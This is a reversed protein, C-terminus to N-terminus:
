PRLVLYWPRSRGGALPPGGQAWNFRQEWVNNAQNAEAVTHMSNAVLRLTHWGAPVSLTLDDTAAWEGSALGGPIRLRAVLTDDVYLDNYIDLTTTAVGDNRVAVDIYTTRDEYLTTLRHGGPQSAPVVPFDWDAPLYPVIDPRLSIQGRELVFERAGFPLFLRRSQLPVATSTPAPVAPTPTAPLSTPVPSSTPTIRQLGILRFWGPASSQAMVTRAETDVVSDLREWLGRDQSWLYLALSTASELSDSEDYRATLELPLDTRGMVSNGLGDTASLVFSQLVVQFESDPPASGDPRDSRDTNLPAEIGPGDRPAFPDSSQDKMALLTVSAPRPGFAGGPVNVTVAGDASSLSASSGSQSVAQVPTRDEFLYYSHSGSRDKVWPDEPFADTRQWGYPDVVRGDRYVGFHLHRGKTCPPGPTDGIDGIPDGAKVIAGVLLDIKALHAYLTAYGNLHDIAVRNGYCRDPALTSPAVITGDAAAVAKGATGIDIGEHGSYWRLNHNSGNTGWADGFLQGTFLLITTKITRDTIDRQEPIRKLPYQHDFYSTVPAAYNQVPWRFLTQPTLDIDHVNCASDRVDVRAQRPEYPWREVRVIYSGPVLQPVAYIGLSNTTTSLGFSGTGTVFVPLGPIPRNTRTDRVVGGLAGMGSSFQLVTGIEPPRLSTNALLGPPCGPVESGVPDVSFPHNACDYQDRDSMCQMRVRVRYQGVSLEETVTVSVTWDRPVRNCLRDTCTTEELLVIVERGEVKYSLLRPVCNDPSEGRIGLTLKQGTKPKAPDVTVRMEDCAPQASVWKVADFLVYKPHRQGNQDRWYWDPTHDYLRVSASNGRLFPYTGLSTWRGGQTQSLDVQFRGVPDGNVGYVYYNATTTAQVSRIRPIYAFVEYQGNAPLNPRWTGYLTGPGPPVTVAYYAHGRYTTDGPGSDFWNNPGTSGTVDFGDDRDDVVTETAFPASPGEDHRDSRSAPQDVSSSGAAVELFARSGIALVGVLVMMSLALRHKMHTM